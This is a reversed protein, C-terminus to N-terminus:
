LDKYWLEHIVFPVRKAGTAEYLSIAPTNEVDAGVWISNIDQGRMCEKLLAIMRSAIGRRRHEPLVGIEYLYAMKGDQAYRPMAYAITFGIPDGDLLALILCNSSAALLERLHELSPTCGDREDEPVLLLVAAQAVQEDGAGLRRVEVEANEVM